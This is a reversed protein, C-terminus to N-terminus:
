VGGMRMAAVFLAGAAIAMGYPMPKHGFDEEADAFSLGIGGARQWRHRLWLALSLGGGALATYFLYQALLDPGAWLACAALLKVDGAGAWGRAFLLFGAVLVFLAVLLAGPWDVPQAASLVWAPYLLCIALSITNPITLSRLDSVAAGAALLAFAANSVFSLALNATM